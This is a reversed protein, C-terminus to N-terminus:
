VTGKKKFRYAFGKANEWDGSLQLTGRHFRGEQYVDVEGTMSNASQYSTYTVSSSLSDRYGIRAQVSGGEVYPVLATILSKGYPNLQVEETGITATYPSGSFSGVEGDTTIGGLLFRGGQWFRSDFSYPITDLDPYEASLEELTYGSTLFGFIAQVSQSCTTWRKDLENYILMTDATDSGGDVSPFSVVLLKNIPDIAATLSYDYSSNYNDRFWKNVKGDGISVSGVGNFAWYGDEDLYYTLTGNSVVSRATKTGRQQEQLDFTFIQDGGVYEMRWIANDQIVSGFDRTGTGAINAFGGGRLDNFGAQTSISPTWVGAPSGLPSWRVRTPKDGDSDVTDLAVLFDGLVFIFRARPATASLQSFETDTTIDFVQIDDEYNTAIILDGYNTFIWVGEAPTSYDGSLRTVDEWSTGNLRYLKTGTGAFTYTAGDSGRMTYAGKCTDPLGDTAAELSLIPKYVGGVSVCGDAITAGTNFEGLDPRWEPFPIIGSVEIRSM